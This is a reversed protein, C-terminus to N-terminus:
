MGVLTIVYVYLCIVYLCIVYLHFPVYLQKTRGWCRVMESLCVRAMTACIPNTISGM